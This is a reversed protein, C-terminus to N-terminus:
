SDAELMECMQNLYQLDDQPEELNLSNTPEGSRYM